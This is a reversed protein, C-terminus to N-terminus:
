REHDTGKKRHCIVFFSCVNKGEWLFTSDTERGRAHPSAVHNAILYRLMHSYCLSSSVSACQPKSHDRLGTAMHIIMALRGSWGTVAMVGTRLQGVVWGPGALGRGIVLWLGSDAM